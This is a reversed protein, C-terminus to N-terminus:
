RLLKELVGLNPQLAQMLDVACALLIFTPGLVCGAIGLISKLTPVEWGEGRSTARVCCIGAITGAIGVCALIAFGVWHAFAYEAVLKNFGDSAPGGLRELASIVKEAVIEISGDM